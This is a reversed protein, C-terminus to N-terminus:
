IKILNVKNEAKYPYIFAKIIMKIILYESFRGRM